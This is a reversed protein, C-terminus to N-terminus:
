SNSRCRELSQRVYGRWLRGLVPLMPADMWFAVHFAQYLHVPMAGSQAVVLPQSMM